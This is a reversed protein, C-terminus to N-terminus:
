KKESKYIAILEAADVYDVKDISYWGCGVHFVMKDNRALWEILKIMEEERYLAVPKNGESMTEGNFEEITSYFRKNFLYGYPKM